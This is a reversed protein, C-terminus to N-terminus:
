KKVMVPEIFFNEEVLVVLNKTNATPTYSFQLGVFKSGRENSWNHLVVQRDPECEKLFDIMNKVKM